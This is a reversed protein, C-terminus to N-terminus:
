KEIEKPISLTQNCGPCVVFRTPNVRYYIENVICSEASNLNRGKIEALRTKFKDKCIKEFEKPNEIYEPMNSQLLEEIRELARLRIHLYKLGRSSLDGMISEKIAAM